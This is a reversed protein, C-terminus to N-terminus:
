WMFGIAQRTRKGRRTRTTFSARRFLRPCHKIMWGLNGLTSFWRGYIEGERRKRRHGLQRPMAWVCTAKGEWLGATFSSNRMHFQIFARSPGISVICSLCYVILISHIHKVGQKTGLTNLRRLGWKFKHMRITFIQIWSSTSYGGSSAICVFGPWWRQWRFRRWWKWRKRLLSPFLLFFVQKLFM